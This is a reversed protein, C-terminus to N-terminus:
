ASQKIFADDTNAAALKHYLDDYAKASNDWSFNRRMANTQLKRWTVPQRYVQRVRELCAILGAADPADLCFGTATGNKVAAPSFNEVSDVTGGTQCTVPPTGYRMAYLPVLGCPEFRAPHLLVDAGAILRHALNERYGIHVAVRGPFRLQLSRFADEYQRDGEGILAFQMGREVLAGLTELVLDPMKQHVIRSVFGILLAGDKVDLGLEHQLATKCAAKPALDAISYPHPLHPDHSPDWVRYDVGNMIGQLIHSRERLLGDLGCGFEPTLIEAAYNPSVTTIADAWAIGAKIFSLRGYFELSPAAEGPIALHEAADLSFLGQYALNHITLVTPKPLASSTKVLLPTLGAHWDNAHLIDPCWVGESGSAIRAAAHSLLAFRRDNDPWECGQDDLYLGGTRGFVAPSDVLLIRAGSGRVGAELIRTESGLVKGLRMIEQPEHANQLATPYAPTLIRVEIGRECLAAPLAAAVDALGGTKILPFVESAIFLVRM